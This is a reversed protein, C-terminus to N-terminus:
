KDLFTIKKQLSEIEIEPNWLGKFVRAINIDAPKPSGEAKSLNNSYWYYDKGDRHCNYFYIRDTGWQLIRPPNSQAFYIPKDAMNKSFRCNILFFQADRHFRGLPFGPVGDFYSNIIVFKQEKNKSGDHWISASLNHGYFKSDEILCFGRPCVFDVYGEFYCNKHYYMGDATNWLSLTDGGDAIISCNLLIVRTGGGRIAFQHDHDNYLSGYNNYVTLNVLSLDTVGEKINIVASGYDDLHDKLWNKRLEAFVIKTSDRDEGILTILNKEIFIKEEYVGRKIFIVYRREPNAPVANIADQIATFNGSGDKAVVFDPTFENAKLIITILLLLLFTLNLNISRKMQKTSYVLTNNTLISIIQIIEKVM